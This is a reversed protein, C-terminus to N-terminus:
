FLFTAISHAGCTYDALEGRFRLTVKHDEGTRNLLLVAISGDPNQFAGAELADTFISYGIRRAGPRIFKSFHGIYHYSSATELKGTERNWMVPSEGVWIKEKDWGAERQEQLWHDPGGDEHLFLNWDVWAGAWHNLDGLIDHAYKEGSAWPIEPTKGTCQESAVFFKEPFLDHAVDLATFHDGSYWHVAIGDFADRSRANCLTEISRDVVREKNHDWFMVKRDGLGMREYAPKLYGTVFDREEGADYVCSEWGQEAKAENQVTVGWIKIGAKEYEQLYRATYRAWVDQCDKRLAGGKDMRGNTKMWAPPSWPSSFVRLNEAKEQAALIMPIVTEKDHAIDFHELEFDGDVDDYSYFDESFDCSNITTRCFTYGLGNEKDFYMELLKARQAATVRSFNLTSAETFAGGFGLIEQYHVQDYVNLINQEQGDNGKKDPRFALTKGEKLYKKKGYNTEVVRIPRNM